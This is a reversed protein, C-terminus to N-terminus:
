QLMSPDFVAIGAYTLVGAVIGIITGPVAKTIKPAALMAVVTVIGIALGRWDWDRPTILVQLWSTGVPAGAFKPLQSGIIILGVGSLYGSVVPYPIYKILKGIGLFGILIQILGTLIGLVTMMLVIPVPQVGQAVLQIAFASLVAAAPACPSSILRDTGGFTPAILGLATAGLIGALAGFAAYHPSIASYITVGFAVSAPLAVLMAAFGGWFDGSHRM